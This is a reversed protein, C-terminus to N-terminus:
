SSIAATPIDPDFRMALLAFSWCCTRITSRRLPHAGRWGGRLHEHGGHGRNTFLWELGISRGAGGTASRTSPSRSPASQQLKAVMDDELHEASARAPRRGGPHRACRARRCGSAPSSASSRPTSCAAPWSSRARRSRSAAAPGTARLSPRSASQRRVAAQHRLLGHPGRPPAGCPRHLFSGRWRCARGRDITREWATFGRTRHRQHGPHASLGAEQAAEFFTQFLPNTVPGRELRQPGNYGRVAGSEGIDSTELRQFYPLCHAYDWTSMGEEAGWRDYDSPHGRQFVMANISSSGGLLRGGRIRSAGATCSPSRSPSTAGTTSAAASRCASRRLCRSRSTGGTTRAARRWCCCATPRTPASATPWSPGASGSGVIVFDYKDGVM